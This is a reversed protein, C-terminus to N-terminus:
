DLMVLTGTLLSEFVSVSPLSHSSGPSGLLSAESFGVTSVGQAQVELRQQKFGRDPHKKRCGSSVSTVPRGGPADQPRHAAVSLPGGAGTTRARPLPVLRRQASSLEM